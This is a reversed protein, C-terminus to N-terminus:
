PNLKEALNQKLEKIRGESMELILRLSEVLEAKKKNSVRLKDQLDAIRLFKKVLLGMQYANIKNSLM